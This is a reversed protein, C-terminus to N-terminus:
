EEGKKAVHFAGFQGKKQMRWEGVGISFGGIEFCAIIQELSMVSANYEIELTCAWNELAGRYRIDSTKTMGGIRVMDERMVPTGEIEIFEDKYQPLVKFAAMAETKKPIAKAQYGGEIACLKFATAPFGFKANMIDEETPVEPRETLWYMSDCFDRFPDKADKGKSAKKMQKDLMEKKAKESWAHSILPTDGILRIFGRQINFEPMKFEVTEEAKKKAAM